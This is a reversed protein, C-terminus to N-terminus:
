YEFWSLMMNTESRYDYRTLKIWRQEWSTNSFTQGVQIDSNIRDSFIPYRDDIKDLNSITRNKWGLNLRTRITRGSFISYRDDIEQGFKSM